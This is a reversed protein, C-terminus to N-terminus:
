LCSLLLSVKLRIDYSFLTECSKNQLANIFYEFLTSIYPKVDNGYSVSRFNLVSISVLVVLFLSEKYSVM